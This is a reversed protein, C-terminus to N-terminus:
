EAKDEKDALDFVFGRVGLSILLNYALVFFLTAVVLMFMYAVSMLLINTLMASVTAYMEYMANIVAYIVGIAFLALPYASFVVSSVRMKKLEVKM